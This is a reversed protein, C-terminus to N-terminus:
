ECLFVELWECFGRVDEWGFGKAIAEDTLYLERLIVSVVSNREQESLSLLYDRCRAALLGDRIGSDTAGTDYAHLGDLADKLQGHNTLNAVVVNDIM